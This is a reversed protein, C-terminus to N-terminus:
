VKQLSQDLDSAPNLFSGRNEPYDASRMEQLRSLTRAFNKNPINEKPFLDVMETEAMCLLYRHHDYLVDVLNIFRYLSPQRIDSFKPINALLIYRFHRAIELYDAAGLNALCLEQFSTWLVQNATRPFILQRSQITLIVPKVPHNEILHKFINEMKQQNYPTLPSLYRWDVPLKLQRYDVQGTLEVVDMYKLIIDIFPLFNHRQLGDKYLDQPAWNSTVVVVVGQQFLEKFLRGLIMADAINAVHFEDFCLLRVERAIRQALLTLLGETSHKQHSTQERIHWLDEHIEAMFQHFHIRKKKLLPVNKFFLDMLMSKGRGVEGYIYLGQIKPSIKQRKAQGLRHWINKFVAPRAQDAMLRRSLQDLKEAIIAQQPDFRWQGKQCAEQYQPVIFYPMTAM